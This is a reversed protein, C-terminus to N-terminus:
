FFYGGSKKENRFPKSKLARYPLSERWFYSLQSDSDDLLRIILDCQRKFSINDVPDNIEIAVATRVANLIEIEEESAANDDGTALAVAIGKLMKLVDTSIYNVALIRESKAIRYYNKNFFSFALDDDEMNFFHHIISLDPFLSYYRKGQMSIKWDDYKLLEAILTCASSDAQRLANKLAAAVRDKSAPALTQNSVVAFGNPTLVLDLINVARSWARWIIFKYALDKLNYEEILSLPSIWSDVFSEAEDIFHSLKDTWLSDGQVSIQINPIISRILDDSYDFYPM